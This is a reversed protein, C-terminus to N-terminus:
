GISGALFVSTELLWTTKNKRHKQNKINHKCATIHVHIPNGPAPTLLSACGVQTSPVLRPDEALATCAEKGNIWGELRPDESRPEIDVVDLVTSLCLSLHPDKYGRTGSINVGICLQLDKGPQVESTPCLWGEFKTDLSTLISVSVNAPEKWFLFFFFSFSPASLYSPQILRAVM